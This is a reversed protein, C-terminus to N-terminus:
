AFHRALSHRGVGSGRGKVREYMCVCLNIYRWFDHSRVQPAKGGKSEM